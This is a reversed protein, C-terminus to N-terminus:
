IILLSAEFPEHLRFFVVFADILMKNLKISINLGLRSKSICIQSSSEYGESIKNM